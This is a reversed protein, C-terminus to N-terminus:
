LNSNETSVEMGYATRRVVLRNRLDKVKGNSGGLPYIDDAFRLNCIPRGGISVSTLHDHLTERMIKELFLSVLTPSLLCGQGVDVTTKFFEGLQSNFFVASRSNEYLAQM